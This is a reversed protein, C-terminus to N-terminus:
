HDALKKAYLASGLGPAHRPSVIEYRVGLEHLASAFRPPITPAAFVGGSYSVTVPEGSEYGLAVRCTDVLKALEGCAEHLIAAAVADGAAEAEVVTRSLQAIEARRGGWRDMVVGILDLDHEVGVRQRVLDYLPGRPLRGDSMRTFANLGRVAIWYGSGEDGFLESWGGVRHGVGRRQGYAMSGTGAIVNIGDAGGLAGAWGGIMDNDCAYRDHGLLRGPIARLNEVDASVEGYGPLGFFAYTIQDPEIGALAAVKSIGEGLVREVLEIGSAFYYCSPGRTEAVIQGDADVLVFATKTGGGDVGLYYAAAQAM